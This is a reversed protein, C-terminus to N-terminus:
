EYEFGEPVIEHIDPILRGKQDLPERCRKVGKLYLMEYFARGAAARKAMELETDTYISRGQTFRRLSDDLHLAYALGFRDFDVDELHHFDSYCNLARNEPTVVCVFDMEMDKAVKFDAPSALEEGGGTEGSGPHTHVLGVSRGTPCTGLQSPMISCADGVCTTLPYWEGGDECVQFGTELELTQGMQEVLQLAPRMKKMLRKCPTLRPL